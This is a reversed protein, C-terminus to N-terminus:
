VTPPDVAFLTPTADCRLRSAEGRMLASLLEIPLQGIGGSTV